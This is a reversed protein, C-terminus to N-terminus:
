GNVKYILRCFLTKFNHHYLLICHNSQDISNGENSVFLVASAKVHSRLIVCYGYILCNNIIKFPLTLLIHLIFM